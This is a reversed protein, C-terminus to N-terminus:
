IVPTYEKGEGLVEYVRPMWESILIHQPCKEECERCAICASARAAEEVRQYGRRAQEIRNYMVGENLINFNRPIDVGNPCPMCYRCMTCPVPSLEVYKARVQAILALEQETLTNVGSVNANAINEKVQEMTSMGSLAVSVEPQNWVWQLAWNAPTRKRPASDWIAQIQQPPNALRGGRIPEMAVVALGKSAAYQLGKTGAQNEIDMYNYQIQCLTWGDYADIIEKFVEYKDHFSFGTHAIRGDAVAKDLWERIGLDCLRPWREGSMGHLLYFDLQKTQLKELQENLVRDFDDATQVAWVPLKTALKIRERYGDKLARGLFRESNGGHYGYGTDVYNLGHEIAYRLMKMAEAEDIESPEGKTPLRM